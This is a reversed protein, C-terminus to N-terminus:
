SKACQQICWLWQSIISMSVIIISLSYTM